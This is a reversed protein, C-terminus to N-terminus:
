WMAGRCEDLLQSSRHVGGMLSANQMAERIAHEIESQSSLGVSKLFKRLSINFAEQDM